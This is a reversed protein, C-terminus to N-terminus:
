RGVVTDLPSPGTGGDAGLGAVAYHFALYAALTSTMSGVDKMPNVETIVMAACRPSLLRVIELADASTLGGPEHAGAGPAFAPDVADIDFALLVHDAGSVQELAAQAAAAAGMTMCDRASVHRMSHEHKFHGSATFNFHRQALQICNEVAVRDLDLCRRMGSSHSFRGQFTNEDMLDLHADLHIVGVPGETSDHLGRAVAFLFSDDGGIVIPHRGRRVSSSVADSCAAHTRELDHGVVDIDGRDTIVTEGVDLVADRELSYVSGDQIRMTM